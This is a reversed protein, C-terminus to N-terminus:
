LRDLLDKNVETLWEIKQKCSSFSIDNDTLYKQFEEDYDFIGNKM